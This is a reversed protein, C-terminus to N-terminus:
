PVVEEAPGAPGIDVAVDDAVIEITDAVDLVRKAVLLAQLEEVKQALTKADKAPAVVIDEVAQLRDEVTPEPDDIEVEHQSIINGQGDETTVQILAM